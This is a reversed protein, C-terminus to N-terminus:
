FSLVMGGSLQLYPHEFFRSTKQNFALPDTGNLYNKSLEGKLFVAVQDIPLWWLSGNVLWNSTYKREDNTQQYNSRSVQLYSLNGSLVISSFLSRTAGLDFRFATEKWPNGQPLTLRLDTIINGLTRGNFVANLLFPSSITFLPSNVQHNLESRQIRFRARTQFGLVEWPLNSAVSLSWSDQEARSNLVPLYQREGTQNYLESDLFRFSASECSGGLVVGAYDYCDVILPEQERRTYTLTWNLTENELQLWDLSLGYTDGVVKSELSFPESLREVTGKSSEREFFVKLNKTPKVVLGFDVLTASKPRSSTGIKDLYNLVDFGEDFVTYEALVAGFQIEAQPFQYGFEEIDAWSSPSLWVILSLFIIRQM